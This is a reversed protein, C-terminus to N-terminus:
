RLCRAEVQIQSEIHARTEILGWDPLLGLKERPVAVFNGDLSRADGITELKGAGTLGYWIFDRSELYSVIEHAKYGWPQTRLDQVEALIVPRPGHELLRRAGRLIDLEGGEADLKIFDVHKIRREKVYDDLRLVQARCIDIRQKVNPPRLSNCGTETGEVVYFDAERESSGFAIPEVVVNSCRNIDLHRRLFLQERPSPEFAIVKGSAGVAKSALLSYYGHHAGVDLVVMGSRLFRLVFRSERQEFTRALIAHSAADNRALWWCGNLLRVPLPVRPFFQFWHSRMWHVKEGWLRKAFRLLKGLSQRTDLWPDATDRHEPVYALMPTILPTKSAVLMTRLRKRGPLQKFDEHDPLSNVRYVYEFGAQYCMRVLCNETPYFAVPTLSQDEIRPEDRLRMLASEGPVCMSELVLVKRTLSHLHRIARFPNELHYLLGFCAVLDFCGLGLVSTDEIDACCFSVEPHRQSAEEVNTRRGDFATVRLGNTSLFSSFYGVGCGADLATQIDLEARFLALLAALPQQRAEASRLAHPQDFILTMPM